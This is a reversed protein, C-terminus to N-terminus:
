LSDITSKGKRYERKQHKYFRYKETQKENWKPNSLADKSRFSHSSISLINGINDQFHNSDMWKFSLIQMAEDLAKQGCKAIIKRKHDECIFSNYINNIIEQKQRKYDFICTHSVGPNHIKLDYTVSLANKISFLIIYKYLMLPDYNPNFEKSDIDITSIVSSKRTTISFINKYLRYPVFGLSINNAKNQPHISILNFISDYNKKSDDEYTAPVSKEDFVKFNFINCQKNVEGFIYKLALSSYNLNGFQHIAVQINNLQNKCTDNKNDTSSITNKKNYSGFLKLLLITGVITLGIIVLYKPSLKIILNVYKNGWVNDGSGSHEQKNEHNNSEPYKSM